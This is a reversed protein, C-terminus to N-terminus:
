GLSIVSTSGAGSTRIVSRSGRGNTVEVSVRGAGTLQTVSCRLGRTRIERVDARDGRWDLVATGAGDVCAARFSAGEAPRISVTYVQEAGPAALAAVPTGLGAMFLGAAMTRISRRM